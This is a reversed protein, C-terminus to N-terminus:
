MSYSFNMSYCQKDIVIACNGIVWTLLLSEVSTVIFQFARHWSCIFLHNLGQLFIVFMIAFFVTAISAASFLSCFKRILITEIDM